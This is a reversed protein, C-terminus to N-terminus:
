SKSRCTRLLPDEAPNFTWPMRVEGSKNTKVTAAEFSPGTTQNQSFVLFCGLLPLAGLTNRLM